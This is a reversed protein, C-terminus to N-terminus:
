EILHIVEYKENLEKAKNSCVTYANKCTDSVNYERDFNQIGNIVGAAAYQIDSKTLSTPNSSTNGLTPKPATPLPPYQYSYQPNEYTEVPAIPKPPEPEDEPLYFHIPEPAPQIRKKTEAEKIAEAEELIM